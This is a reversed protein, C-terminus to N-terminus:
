NGNTQVQTDDHLVGSTSSLRVKCQYNASAPQRRSPLTKTRVLSPLLTASAGVVSQNACFHTKLSTNIFYVTGPAQRTNRPLIRFHCQAHRDSLPDQERSTHKYSQSTLLQFRHSIQKPIIVVINAM